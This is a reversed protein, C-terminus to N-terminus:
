VDTPVKEEEQELGEEDPKIIAKVKGELEKHTEDFRPCLDGFDTIEGSIIKQRQEMFPKKKETIMDEMKKCAENFDDNLKSRSDSLMHLVKFRAQVEKPM